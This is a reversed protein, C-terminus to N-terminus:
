TRPHKDFFAFIRRAGAAMADSHGVGPLEDYEYTMKLTRMKEAWVRTHEPAVNDDADGQILIMPVNVAEDLIGPSLSGAAPASAAVAGWTQRYKVGLYLAGAGGMSQGALYIRNDDVSFEQRMLDLVNMVDKESLESLNSPKAGPPIRGSIGYWGDLSYGMPAAVIYGAADAADALSRLVSMPPANQGHLAIVLPSRNRKNVKASVFVDYEIKQNTEKFLYSRKQIREAAGSTVMPGGRRVGTGDPPTRRQASVSTVIGLSGLLTGIALMRMWTVVRM